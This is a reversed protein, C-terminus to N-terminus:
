PKKDTPKLPELELSLEMLDNSSGFGIPTGPAPPPTVLVAPLDSITIPVPESLDIDLAVSSQYKAGRSGVASASAPPQEVPKPEQSTLKNEDVAAEARPAPPEFGFELAAALSDLPFDPTHDLPTLSSLAHAAAAEFTQPHPTTRKRPPPAGRASSPTTQAIALLLLLDDFAALDFPAKRTDGPRYFMHKELVHLVNPSSWEAEIEALADLYQDLPKGLRDFASFEPVHANFHRMFQQRLANFDAARSLTRYLRLLDLYAVPSTEEHQAIHQRLVEVAQDHEGVSVFFEAQQQIDFLEEPNIIHHLPAQAVPAATPAPEFGADELSVEGPEAASEAAVTQVVPTPAAVPPTAAPALPRGWRDTPPAVVEEVPELDVVSPEDARRSSVAVAERWSRESKSAARDSRRWLWGCLGLAMALAGGLGYVMWSPLRDAEMEQVQRQLEATLAQNRNASARFQTLETELKRLAAEQQALTQPDQNLARWLAAAQERQPSTESAPAQPLEPTTRLALPIELWADLPEMVLRSRAPERPAAQKVVSPRPSVRAEKRVVTPASTAKSGQVASNSVPVDVATQPTVRSPSIVAGQPGPVAVSRPATQPPDAFFIYTRTVRGACGATLTVQVIPEDIAVSAQVRVGTRGGTEPLPTVFVKSESLQADGSKVAAAVCSSAVDSGTDPQVDFTLDLSSGLIVAGRSAGLSLASAGAAIAWLGAGLINNRLKM